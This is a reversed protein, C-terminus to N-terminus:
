KLNNAERVAAEKAGNKLDTVTTVHTFDNGTLRIAASAEGEVRLFKALPGGPQCGSVTVNTSQVLRVLPQEASPSPADFGNLTVDHCDDLLIAPRVDPANLGFRVNQMSLGKVHRVYLGYAPLCPGFMRNEPYSAEKEPVPAAADEPKPRSSSARAKKRIKALDV